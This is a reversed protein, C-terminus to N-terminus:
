GAAILVVGLAALLLGVLQIRGIPEHLIRWALVVTFAPALAALPAVVVALDNRVAIVLAVTGGIDALGACVAARRPAGSISMRQGRRALVLVVIGVLTVGVVRASLLPWMGSNSGTEAYCVFSLGLGTGAGVAILVSRGARGESGDDEKGILVAAVIACVVGVWVVGPPREGNTMGWVVPVVAAVAATVPAVVGMRGSALGYYLLGLGVATAAGAGAGLVLDHAIVPKETVLVAILAGAGAALQALLLVFATPASRSARGGLFDGGGYLAAATIALIISM